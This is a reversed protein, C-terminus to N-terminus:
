WLEGDLNGQPTSAMVVEHPRLVRHTCKGGCTGCQAVCRRIVKIPRYSRFAQTFQEPQFVSVQQCRPCLASIRLGDDIAASIPLMWLRKELCAALEDVAVLRSQEIWHNFLKHGVAILTQAWKTEAEAAAVAGSCGELIAFQAVTGGRALERLFEACVGSKPKAAFADHYRRKIRTAIDRTMGVYVPKAPYEGLPDPERPDLMAYVVYKAGRTNRAAVQAIGSVRAKMQPSMEAFQCM